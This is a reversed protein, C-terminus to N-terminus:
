DGLSLQDQFRKDKISCKSSVPIKGKGGIYDILNIYKQDENSIKINNKSYVM